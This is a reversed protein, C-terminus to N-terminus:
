LGAVALGPQLGPTRGVEIANDIGVRIADARCISLDQEGSRLRDEFSGLCKKFAQTAIKAENALLNAGRRGEVQGIKGRGKAPIDAEGMACAEALHFADAQIEKGGAVGFAVPHPFQGLDNMRFGEHKATEMGTRADADPLLAYLAELGMALSAPMLLSNGSLMEPMKLRAM